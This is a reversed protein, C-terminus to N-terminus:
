ANSVAHHTEAKEPQRSEEEWLYISNGSPDEIEVFNGGEARIVPGTIRVGGATLRSV